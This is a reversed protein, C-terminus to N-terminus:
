SRIVQSLYEQDLSEDFEDDSAKIPEYDTESYLPPNPSVTNKKDQYPSPSVASKWFFYKRLFHNM